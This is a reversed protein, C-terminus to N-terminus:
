VSRERLNIGVVKSTERDEIVVTQIPLVNRILPIVIRRRIFEYVQHELLTYPLVVTCVTSFEVLPNSSSLHLEEIYTGVEVGGVVGLWDPV